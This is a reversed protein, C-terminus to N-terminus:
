LSEGEDGSSLAKFLHDDFYHSGVLRNHARPDGRKRLNYGITFSAQLRLQLSQVGKSFPDDSEEGM